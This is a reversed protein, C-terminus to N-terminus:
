AKRVVVCASMVLPVERVGARVDASRSITQSFFV